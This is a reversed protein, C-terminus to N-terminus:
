PIWPITSKKNTQEDSKLKTFKKTEHSMKFPLIIHSNIESNKAKKSLRNVGFLVVVAAVVVVGCDTDDDGM